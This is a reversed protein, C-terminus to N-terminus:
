IIVNMKFNIKMTKDNISLRIVNLIRQLFCTACKDRGTINVHSFLTM